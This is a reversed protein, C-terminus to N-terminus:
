NASPQRDVSDVVFIDFPMARKDLRLGLNNEVASLFAPDTIAYNVGPTPTWHLDIKYEGHLGTMNVVPGSVCISLYHLSLDDLSIAESYFEGPRTVMSARAHKGNETTVIKHDRDRLGDEAALQLKTGRKSPVLAFAKLRRTENHNALGFRELLTNHSMLMVQARSTDPSMTAQVTFIDDNLWTPGSLQFDKLSFAQNILDSLTSQCIIRSPLLRCDGHSYASGDPIFRKISVADFSIRGKNVESQAKSPGVCLAVM